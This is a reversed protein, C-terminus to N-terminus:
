EEFLGMDEAVIDALADTLAPDIQAEEVGDHISENHDDVVDAVSSLPVETETDCAQCIVPVTPEDEGAMGWREVGPPM